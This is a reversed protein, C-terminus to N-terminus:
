DEPRLVPSSCRSDQRDTVSQADGQGAGALRWCGRGAAKAQYLALDAAKYLADPTAADRPACAIGISVDVHLPSRAHHIPRRVSEQIRACVAAIGAADVLDPMLVAFEDGGLRAVRDTERVAEGLRRAVAVLVADGADHGM